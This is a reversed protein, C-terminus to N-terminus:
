SRKRSPQKGQGTKPKILRRLPISEEADKLLMWPRKGLGEAIKVFVTISLDADSSEIRSIYGRSLDVLEALQEQSIGLDARHRRVARAVADKWDIRAM